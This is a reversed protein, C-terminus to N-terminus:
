LLIAEGQQEDGVDRPETYIFFFLIFFLYFLLIFYFFLLIFYFFLLIETYIFFIFHKYYSPRVKSNTVLM